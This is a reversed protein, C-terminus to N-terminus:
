VERNLESFLSVRKRWGGLSRQLQVLADPMVCASASQQMCKVDVASCARRHCFVLASYLFVHFAEPFSVTLLNQRAQRIIDFPFNWANKLRASPVREVVVDHIRSERSIGDDVDSSHGLFIVDNNRLSLDASACLEKV